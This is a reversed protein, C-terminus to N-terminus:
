LTVPANNNEKAEFKRMMAQCFMHSSNLDFNMMLGM